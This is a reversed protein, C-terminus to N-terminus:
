SKAWGAIAAVLGDITHPDAEVDVKVGLERATTSTIPGISAVASPMSDIGVLRVFREVTSSSTFTILDGTRARTRDNPGIVADITRYATVRDVQWGKARLGIALVDRAVEAQVLLLRQGPEAVPMAEVLGEAVARDPVVNVSLPTDTLKAATSSGVCAVPPLNTPDIAAEAVAAALARAGNPSAIALQDYDAVNALANALAAGGDAPAVIEITAVEVVDAGLAELKEALVSAQTKARTVVVTVGRLPVDLSNTPTPNM